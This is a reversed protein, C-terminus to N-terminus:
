MTGQQIRYRCNIPDVVPQSLHEISNIRRTAQLPQFARLRRTQSLFSAWRALAYRAFSRALASDNNAVVEAASAGLSTTEFVLLSKRLVARLPLVPWGM